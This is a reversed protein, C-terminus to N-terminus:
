KVFLIYRIRLMKQCPSVCCSYPPSPKVTFQLTTCPMIEKLSLFINKFLRECFTSNMQRVDTLDIKAGHLLLTALTPVAGYRAAIMLPTERLSSDARSDPNAGRQLIWKAMEANGYEGALHLSTM